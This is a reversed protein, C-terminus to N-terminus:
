KHSTDDAEVSNDSQGNSLQKFLQQQSALLTRSVPAPEQRFQDWVRSNNTSNLCLTKIAASNSAFYAPIFM